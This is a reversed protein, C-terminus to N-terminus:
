VLAAAIQATALTLMLTKTMLVKSAQDKMILYNIQLIRIKQINGTARMKKMTMTMTM